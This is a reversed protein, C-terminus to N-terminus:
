ECFVNWVNLKKLNSKRFGTFKIGLLLCVNQIAFDGTLVILEYDLKPSPPLEPKKGFRVYSICDAPGRIPIGYKLCLDIAVACVDLDTSSLKFIDRTMSAANRTILKAYKNPEISTIFDSYKELHEKSNRCKLENLVSEPCYFYNDPHLLNVNRLLLGTDIVYLKNVM